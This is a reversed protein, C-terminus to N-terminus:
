IINSTAPQHRSGPPLRIKSSHRIMLFQWDWVHRATSKGTGTRSDFAESSTLLKYSMNLVGLKAKKM